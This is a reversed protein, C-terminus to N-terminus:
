DLEEATRVIEAIFDRRVTILSTMKTFDIATVKEGSNTPRDATLEEDEITLVCTKGAARARACDGTAMTSVSPTAADDAFAAAPALLVLSFLLTRM